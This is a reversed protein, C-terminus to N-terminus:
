ECLQFTWLFDWCLEPAGTFDYLCDEGPSPGTKGKRAENGTVMKHSQYSWPWKEGTWMVYLLLSQKRKSDGARTRLTMRIPGVQALDRDKGMGTPIDCGHQSVQKMQSVPLLTPDWGLWVDQPPPMVWTALVLSSPCKHGWVLWHGSWPSSSSPVALSNGSGILAGIAHASCRRPWSQVFCRKRVWHIFDPLHDQKVRRFLHKIPHFPSVVKWICTLHRRESCGKYGKVIIICLSHTRIVAEKDSGRPQFGPLSIPSPSLWPSQLGLHSQSAHMDPLLQSSPVSLCRQGLPRQLHMWSSCRHSPWESMRWEKMGDDLLM